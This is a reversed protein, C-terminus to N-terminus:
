SSQHSKVASKVKLVQEEVIDITLARLASNLNTLYYITTTFFKIIYLSSLPDSFRLKLKFTITPSANTTDIHQVEWIRNQPHDLLNCHIFLFINVKLSTM